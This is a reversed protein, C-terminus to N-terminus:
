RWDPGVAQDAIGSRDQEVHVGVPAHRFADAGDDFGVAVLEGIQMEPAEAGAM